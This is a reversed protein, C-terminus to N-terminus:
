LIPSRLIVASEADTHHIALEAKSWDPVVGRQGAAKDFMDVLVVLTASLSEANMEDRDIALRAYAPKM